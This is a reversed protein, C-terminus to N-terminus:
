QNVALAKDYYGLAEDYKQLNKLAIAKNNLAGSDTPDIELAKDYYQIAEDYKQQKYFNNAKNYLTELDNSNIIASSSNVSPQAFIPFIILFSVSLLFIFPIIVYYKYLSVGFLNCDIKELMMRNKLISLNRFYHSIM